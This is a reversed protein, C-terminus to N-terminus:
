QKPPPRLSSHHHAILWDKGQKVLVMTFRAPEPVLKGDRNRLFDNFGAVLITSDNIVRLQQEVFAVKNGTGVIVKFYETIAGRGITLTNSRTGHLIADQAYLNAVAFNDNADYAATWRAFLAAAEEAPGSLARTPALAFLALALLGALAPMFVGGTMAKRIQYISKSM